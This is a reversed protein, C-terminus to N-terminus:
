GGGVTLSTDSPCPRHRVPTARPPTRGGLGPHDAELRVTAPAGGPRGGYRITSTSERLRRRGPTTSIPPRMPRTAPATSTRLLAGTEVCWCAKSSRKTMIVASVSTPGTTGITFSMATLARVSPWRRRAGAVTARSCSPRRDPKWRSTAAAESVTARGAGREASPLPRRVWGAHTRRRARRDACSRRRM